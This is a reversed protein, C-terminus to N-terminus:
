LISWTDLELSYSFWRGIYPTNFRINTKGDIKRNSLANFGKGTSKVYVREKDNPTLNLTIRVDSKLKIIENGITTYDANQVTELFAGQFDDTSYQTDPWGRETATLKITTTENNRAIFDIGGGTRERLQFILFYLAEVEGRIEPDNLWKQPPRILAPNVETTM